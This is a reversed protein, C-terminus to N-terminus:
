SRTQRLVGDDSMELVLTSGKNAAEEWLDSCKGNRPVLGTARTAGRGAQFTSSGGAKRNGLAPISRTLPEQGESCRLGPARAAELWTFRMEPPSAWAGTSKCAAWTVGYSMCSQFGSLKVM